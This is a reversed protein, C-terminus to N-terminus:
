RYPNSGVAVRIDDDESLDIIDLEAKYNGNLEDYEAGFNLYEKENYDIDGLRKSM